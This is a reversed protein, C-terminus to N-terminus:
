WLTDSGSSEDDAEDDSPVHLRELKEVLENTLSTTLRTDPIEETSAEVRVTKPRMTREREERLRKSRHICIRTPHEEGCEDCRAQKKAFKMLAQSLMQNIHPGTERSPPVAAITPNTRPSTERSLVTTLMESREDKGLAYAKSESRKTTTMTKILTRLKETRTVFREFQSREDLTMSRILNMMTEVKTETSQQGYARPCERAYHGTQRCRYCTREGHVEYRKRPASRMRTTSPGSATTKAKTQNTSASARLWSLLTTMGNTM